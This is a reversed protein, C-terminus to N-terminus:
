YMRHLQIREIKTLKSEYKPVNQYMKTLKSEISKIKIIRNPGYAECENMNTCKM